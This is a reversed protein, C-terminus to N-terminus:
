RGPAQDPRLDPDTKLTNKLKLRAHRNAARRERSNGPGCISCHTVRNGIIKLTRNNM